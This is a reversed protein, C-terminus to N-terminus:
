EQSEEIQPPNPNNIIKYWNDYRQQKMVEIEADTMTHDDSLILADKYGNIEFDIIIM